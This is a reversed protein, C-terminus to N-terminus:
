GAMVIRRMERCAHLVRDCAELFAKRWAADSRVSGGAWEGFGEVLGLFGEVTELRSLGIPGAAAREGRPIWKMAGAQALRVAEAVELAAKLIEPRRGDPDSLSQAGQVAIARLSSVPGDMARRMGAVVAPLGGDSEPRKKLANPPRAVPAGGADPMQGVIEAGLAKAIGKIDRAM